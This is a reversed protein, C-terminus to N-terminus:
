SASSRTPTDVALAFAYPLSRHALWAIHSLRATGPFGDAQGNRRGPTM